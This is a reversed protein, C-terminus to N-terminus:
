KSCPFIVGTRPIVRCKQFSSLFSSPSGTTSSANSKSVMATMVKILGCCLHGEVNIAAILARGSLYFIQLEQYWRQLQGAEAPRRDNQTAVVVHTCNPDFM